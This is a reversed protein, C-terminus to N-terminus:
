NICSTFYKNFFFLSINCNFHILGNYQILYVFIFNVWCTNQGKNTWGMPQFCGLYNKVAISVHHSFWHVAKKHVENPLFEWVFLFPMCYSFTNLFIVRKEKLYGLTLMHVGFLPLGRSFTLFSVTFTQHWQQGLAWEDKIDPNHRVTHLVSEGPHAASSHLLRVTAWYPPIRFSQHSSSSSPQTLLRFFQVLGDLSGWRIRDTGDGVCSGM